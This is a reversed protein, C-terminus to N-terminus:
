IIKWSDHKKNVAYISVLIVFSVVFLVFAYKNATNFNLSQVEDYIAISAVRTEGPMSGGVMLVVMGCAMVGDLAMNRLLATLNAWTPFSRPFAITAGIVGALMLLLLVTERTLRFGGRRATPGTSAVPSATAEPMPM